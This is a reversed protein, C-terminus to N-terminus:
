KPIVIPAVASVANSHSLYVLVAIAMMVFSFLLGIGGVIWGWLAGMGSSRGELTNQRDKLDQITASLSNGLTTVTLAIADLLKTTAAGSVSVSEKAAQLAADLASKILIANETVRTDREKFQVQIGSFREDMLKRLAEIKEDIQITTLVTPDPTPKWDTPSQPEGM